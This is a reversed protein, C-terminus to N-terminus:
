LNNNRADEMLWKEAKSFAAPDDVDIWFHDGIDVVRAQGKHGLINMGGTISFDDSAAGSELIADFLAPTARFIGTDFANYEAIGKGIDRIVGGEELVRTVDDMDVYPNSLRYDVGLITDNIGAEVAIMSSIIAPEMLHDCMSLLFPENVFQHAAVVSLGNPKKFDPNYVLDLEVGLHDAYSTVRSSVEETMHGTVVVFSTIGGAVARAMVHSIIPKDVLELLPKSAGMENLRSGAGAAVIVLKL